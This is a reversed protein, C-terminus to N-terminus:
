ESFFKQLDATSVLGALVKGDDRVLTPVAGTGLQEWETRWMQALVRDVESVALNNLGLQHGLKALLAEDSIDEGNVWMERAITHRYVLGLMADLRAAAISYEIARRTNPKGVPFAIDVEPALEKVHVVERELARSLSYTAIQRPEPLDPDHQVGKWDVSSSLHLAVLREELAYCFPCNFDSFLVARHKM